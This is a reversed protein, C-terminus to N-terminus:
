HEDAGRLLGVRMQVRRYATAAEVNDDAVLRMSELADVRMASQREQGHQAARGMGYQHGAGRHGVCARLVDVRQEIREAAGGTSHWAEAQPILPEAELVALDERAIPIDIPPDAQRSLVAVLEVRQEASHHDPLALFLHQM